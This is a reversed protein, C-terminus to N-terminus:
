DPMPDQKQACELVMSLFTHQLQCCDKSTKPLNSPQLSMYKTWWCHGDVEYQGCDGTADPNKSDNGAFIGMIRSVPVVIYNLVGPVLPLFPFTYLSRFLKLDLGFVFM